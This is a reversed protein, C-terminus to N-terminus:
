SKIYRKYLRDYKIIGDKYLEFLLKNAGQGHCKNHQKVTMVDLNDLQNNQKDGDIHHVVENDYLARNLHQEMVMTHEYMSGCHVHDSLTYTDSVWIKTYGHDSISREGVRERSKIRKTSRGKEGALLSYPCSSCYHSYDNNCRRRDINKSIQRSFESGCNDCKLHAIYTSRLIPAKKGSKYTRTFERTIREKRIFM